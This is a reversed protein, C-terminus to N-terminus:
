RKRRLAGILPVIFALVSLGSVCGGSSGGVGQGDSSYVASIVPAYTTGAELYAGVNIIRDEPVKDTPNLKSDYFDCDANSEASDEVAGSANRTFPHWRLAYGVPVDESLHINAFSAIDEYTYFASVDVSIEPLVAAVKANNATVISMEGATLSSVGRSTGEHAKKQPTPSPTPDDDKKGSDDDDKKKDDEPKDSAIKVTYTRRAEGVENTVELAFTFTGSKTPTGFIYGNAALSLGDPLKGETDLWLCPKTGDASLAATEYPTNVKGDPLSQTTVSPKEMVKLTYMRDETLDGSTIYIYAKFDGAKAPLGKIDGSQSITLGLSEDAYIEWKAPIDNVLKVTYAYPEGKVAYPLIYSASAIQPAEDITHALTIDASGKDNYAILQFKYEGTGTMRGCFVPTSDESKIRTGEPLDGSVAFTIPGSGSVPIPLYFDVNRYLRHNGNLSKADFNFEPKEDKVILRVERSTVGYNNSATVVLKVDCSAAPIGYIKMRSTSPENEYNALRFSLGDPLNEVDWTIPLTGKAIFVDVSDTEPVSEMVPVAYNRGVMGEYLPETSSTIVPAQPERVTLTFDKSDVGSLNSATVKFKYTGAKKPYFRMFGLTSFFELKFNDPVADKSDFDWRVPWLKDDTTMLDHHIQKDTMVVDLSMSKGDIVPAPLEDVSLTIFSSAKYGYTKAHNNVATIVVPFQGAELPTGSIRGNDFSLGEPLTGEIDWSVPASGYAYFEMKFRQGVKPKDPRVDQIVIPSDKSYMDEMFEFAGELDLLGYASTGDDRLYGCDAGGVIAAKIESATAQPYVSKLLAAAGAVHPTAMSTGNLLTYPYNARLSAYNVGKGVRSLTLNLPITSYINMGPAAVDVYKGSYNSFSTRELQENAAAVTIMNDIELYSQPAGYTGKYWRRAGNRFSTSYTPVGVELADNGASKAIILRNKDSLTKIASWYPDETLVAQEPSLGVFGGVSFNLAAINLEPHKDLLQSVYNFGNIIDGNSGSGNKNLVRVSIIKAKWNVGVVGQANNGIAAITGAVHTGHGAEDHYDESTAGPNNFTSFNCSYEHSFNDKLDPHTYDVGSDMVVVYVDGSGTAKNWVQPAKIAEMGWLQNYDTDNPIKVEPLDLQVIYNLSAAIVDPRAQIEKLLENENKTDSHVVMFINGSSKTLSDYTRTINVNHAESFSQVASLSKLGESNASHIEEGSTNRLVVIVDGPVAEQAYSATVCLMVLLILALIKKM